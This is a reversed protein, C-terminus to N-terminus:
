EPWVAGNEALIECARKFNAKESEAKIAAAFALWYNDLVPRAVTGSMWRKHTIPKWHGNERTLTYGKGSPELSDKL